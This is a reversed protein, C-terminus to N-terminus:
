VRAGEGRSTPTMQAPVSSPNIWTVASPPSCQFSTDGGSCVFVGHAFTDSMSAPWKSVSVAYAAILVSRSSSRRGCM